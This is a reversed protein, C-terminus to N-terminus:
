LGASRGQTVTNPRVHSVVAQGGKITQASDGDRQHENFMTPEHVTMRDNRPPTGAGETHAQEKDQAAEQNGADQQAGFLAGVRVLAGDPRGEIETARHTDERERIEGQEDRPEHVRWRHVVIAHPELEGIQRIPGHQGVAEAASQAVEPRKGDLLLEIEHPGGQQQEQWTFGEHGRHQQGDAAYDPHADQAVIIWERQGDQERGAGITERDAPQEGTDPPTLHPGQDSARRDQEQAAADKGSQSFSAQHQETRSDDDRRNLMGEGDQLRALQPM